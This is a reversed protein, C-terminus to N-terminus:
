KGEWIIQGCLSYKRTSKVPLKYEKLFNNAQKIFAKEKSSEVPRMFHYFLYDVNGNTDTYIRTWVKLSLDWKFGNKKFYRSMENFLELREVAVITDYYIQDFVPNLTDNAPLGNKYISDLDEMSAGQKTLKGADYVRDQAFITTAFFLFFVSIIVKKM